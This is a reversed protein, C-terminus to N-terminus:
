IKEFSNQGQLSIQREIEVAYNNRFKYDFIYADDIYLSLTFRTFQGLSLREPIDSNDVVNSNLRINSTHEINANNYPITINIKPFNIFKFIFDRVYEDAEAYYRTYIDLQYNIAIPIGNLIGSRQKNAEVTVGDFTLPKKNTSIIEFDKGRRLAILPLQISSDNSIDARYEFLRRTEDPGTITMNPDNVWKRIKDVLADDYFKLAM